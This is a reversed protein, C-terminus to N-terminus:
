RHWPFREGINVLLIVLSFLGWMEAGEERQRAMRQERELLVAQQRRNFEEPRTAPTSSFFM